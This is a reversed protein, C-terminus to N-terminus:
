DPKSGGCSRPLDYTPTERLVSLDFCNASNDAGAAGLITSRNIMTAAAASAAATPAANYPALKKQLWVPPIRYSAFIAQATSASQAAVTAPAQALLMINKYAGGSDLPMSCVVAMLDTPGQQGSFAVVFRGCQGVTAPLQLPTASNITIQTAPKGSTAASQQLIMTLKQALTATYPMSLDIGNSPRQGLQFAGNRAVVTNGLSVTVGNPSTMQIVTEQGKTVQWGAPVGASASQDSAVYPQLQITPAAATATPQTVQCGAPIPPFVITAVTAAMLLFSTGTDTLVLLAGQLPHALRLQYSLM